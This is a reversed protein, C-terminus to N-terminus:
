NLLEDLEVEPEGQRVEPQHIRSLGLAEEKEEEGGM